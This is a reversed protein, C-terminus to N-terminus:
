GPVEHMICMRGDDHTFMSDVLNVCPVSIEMAKWEDVDNVWQLFRLLEVAFFSMAAPRIASAAFSEM